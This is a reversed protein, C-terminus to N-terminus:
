LAYVIVFVIIFCNLFLFSELDFLFFEDSNPNSIFSYEFLFIWLKPCYKFESDDFCYKANLVKYNIILCIPILDSFPFLSISSM